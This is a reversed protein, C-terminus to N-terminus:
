VKRVNEGERRVNRSRLLDLQLEVVDYSPLDETNKTRRQAGM